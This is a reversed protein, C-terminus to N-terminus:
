AAASSPTEVAEEHYIPLTVTFVTGEGESSECRIRGNHRSVVTHVLALGLGVGQSGSVDERSTAFRHFLEALQAQAMGGASDAIECTVAENGDLSDISLRCSVVKGKPSFKVANDLLNILARTMLRRDACVVYETDDPAFAVEVSASSALPWVADAADHVILTLDIPQFEYRASEAQALRVFSDALELTRRAQTEIRERLGPPAKKFEPNDLIAIIAAQPSRMDHSLLQLAEERQRMASVLPTVDALHVIWGSAEGEADRTPTFRVEYARNDAGIGTIPTESERNANDPPPWSTQGAGGSITDLVSTVSAGAEVSLALERALEEAAGNVRAIRGQRDVVLVPDPFNALIDDVFRRLDSIRRKADELVTMQQLVVDGGAPLRRSSLADVGTEQEMARIERAFYLSAANLRRWGWYPVIIVLTTLYSSPPVWFLRFAVGLVSLALPIVALGVSLLLNERPGLRVLAFLLVAILTASLLFVEWKHAIVFDYGSLIGNLINAQIEVNPMQDMTS